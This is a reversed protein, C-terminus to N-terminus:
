LILELILKEPIVYSDKSKIRLSNYEKLGNGINAIHKGNLWSGCRRNCLKPLVIKNTWIRTRKRYPMGYMCYDADVYHLGQMFEQEKLKGTQPNEIIYYKPEFYDIIELVKEVMPIGLEIIDNEIDEATLKRGLKKDFSGKRCHRLTSWWLCVPSATVIHFHGKPFQKYNWTMIDEEIHNKSTYGTGFPCDPGMDRDLSIVDYGFKSSIKGFSHTGSFLELHKM